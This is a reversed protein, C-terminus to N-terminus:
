PLPVFNAGVSRFQFNHSMGEVGANVQISIGLGRNIRWVQGLDLLVDRSGTWSGTLTAFRVNGDWVHVDSVWADVSGTRFKLRIYRVGRTGGGLSPVAFHVWNSTGSSQDFDLGWGWYIPYSTVSNENQLRGGHGHTYYWSAEAPAAFALALSAVLAIVSLLRAHRSRTEM